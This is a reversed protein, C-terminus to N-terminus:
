DINELPSITCYRGTELAMFLASVHLAQCIAGALAQKIVIPVPTLHINVKETPDDAPQMTQVVNRALVIHSFNNQNAPNPCLRGCYLWDDSTYGTEELLERKAAELPAEGADIGGGPVELSNAAIGHRYQEILIVNGTRDIAVVHVWDPYSLVYYPAIVAGEATLCDDARVDIWRDKLVVKSSQVQWPLLNM